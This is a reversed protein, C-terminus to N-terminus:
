PASEAYVAALRAYGPSRRVPTLAPDSQVTQRWFTAREAAPITEVAQRLLDMARELYQLRLERGKASQQQPDEECKQFAQAYIRSANYRLRAPPAPALQLAAEADVVALRHQGLRVRAYGRGNYGDPHKPDLQLLREFDRLALTPADLVTYAWGRNALADAQDPQLELVSTYDAVAEAFQGQAARARARALYLATATKRRAPDPELARDLAQLAEPMRDLQLLTEARLRRVTASEPQLQAADLVRIAEAYDQQRVLLNAKAVLDGAVEASALGRPEHRIAEDYDRLAAEPRDQHEHLRARTRYLVARLPPPSLALARDLHERAQEWRGLEQYAQALNAHGAYEEPKLRIAQTLDAVAAPLKGQRVRMLGRNVHVGYRAVPDATETTTREVHAFDAEAADFDDLESAAYGRLLYPWTHQPQLEICRTLRHIALPLRSARGQANRHKLCCVALAYQAGLHDPEQKLAQQFHEAAEDLKGERYLAIGHLFRECARLPEAPRAQGRERAAGAQDGLTELCRARRGHLVVGAAPWAAAADLLQLAQAIRERRAAGEQQRAADTLVDVLDIVMEFCSEIIAAQAAPTCSTGALDPPRPQHLSCGYLALADAVQQRTARLNTEVDLGTFGAAALSAAARLQRLQQWRARDSLHTEIQSGLREVRAQFGDLAADGPFKKRVPSLRPPVTMLLERARPWDENETAREVRYLQAQVEAIATHREQGDLAATLSQRLHLYHGLSLVLLVLLATLSALALSPHRRLWKWAQEGRSARRALIPEGARFRRLDEALDAARAYRKAPEKRLCKLCIVELDAPLKADLQRPPAPDQGRVQELTDWLSAARFPPRGTLMEYFLAGLAYVDTAPGIDGTKSSAQEPAMYSPTGIIESSRTELVEVDLQKALGFDTIKVRDAGFADPDPTDDATPRQGVLVNAPKLDRHVVGRAHAAEVARALVETLRVAEPTPLPAGALRQALNGGEVLEMTFYPNGAHEGVEYVRVINPHELRALLEAEARFRAQDQPRALAAGGRIMKLAVLRKLGTQRARYVVGMGGQGIVALVEYGPVQPLQPDGSVTPKSDAATATSTGPKALRPAAFQRELQEALRPFRQRYEELSPAEGQRDRLQVEHGILDLVCEDSRISPHDALYDEVLFREGRRWRQDQDDLIADLRRVVTVAQSDDAPWPTIDSSM